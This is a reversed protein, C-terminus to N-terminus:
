GSLWKRLFGKVIINSVSKTGPALIHVYTICLITPQDMASMYLHGLNDYDGLHLAILRVLEDLDYVSAM